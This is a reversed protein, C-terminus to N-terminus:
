KRETVPQPHRRARVVTDAAAISEPHGTVAELFDRRELAVLQANTLAVVTATRPVDRLLAIEGFYGGPGHADVVEGAISVEVTGEVLVYFRDGPEGERILVSGPAFTVPRVKGALRELIPASLPAFISVSRLLAVEASPVVAGADIEVLRRWGIVTLLPLVIGAVVFAARNGVLSLLPPTLAIGIAIAALGAGELIGFIRALVRDAVSRQLLTYGAVAVLPRGIGVIALLLTAATRNPALALAALASGTLATGVLIAPALRPRGGLALTFVSGLTSGIGFAANLFGVGGSGINLVQYALVVMLLDLAGLVISQAGLLGVLLRSEANLARFGGLLDAVAGDPGEPGGTREPAPQPTLRIALLLSGLLILTLLAFVASPGALTLVVGALAPGAFRSTSEILGTTSNVATLEGASRALRPALAAQVPRTLVLSVTAATAAAYVALPPANGILVAGVIAMALAEVAFGAAYARDRRYRDGVLAAFPAILAAPLLQIVGILGAVAAGGSEYAYVLVAVWAAYETVSFGVFALQTRRLNPNRLVAAVVWISETLWRRLAGM